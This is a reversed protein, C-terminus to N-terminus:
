PGVRGIRMSRGLIVHCGSRKGGPSGGAGGATWISRHVLSCRRQPHEVHLVEAAELGLDVLGDNGHLHHASPCKECPGACEAAVIIAFNVNTAGVRRTTDGDDDEDDDEDDEDDDDGEGEGEDEDDDEDNDEEEEEDDDDENM